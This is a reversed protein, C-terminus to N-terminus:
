QSYSNRCCKGLRCFVTFHKANTLEIEVKTEEKQKITEKVKKFFKELLIQRQSILALEWDTDVNPDKPLHWKVVDKWTELALGSQTLPFIFFLSVCVLIQHAEERM